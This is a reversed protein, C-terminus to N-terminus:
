IQLFSQKMNMVITNRTKMKHNHNSAKSHSHHQPRQAQISALVDTGIANVTFDKASIHFAISTLKETTAEILRGIETKVDEPVDNRNKILFECSTWIHTKQKAKAQSQLSARISQLKLNLTPGNVLPISQSIDQLLILEM